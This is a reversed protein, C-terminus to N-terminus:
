VRKIKKSSIIPHHGIIVINKKSNKELIEIIQKEQEEILKNYNREIKPFVNECYLEPNEKTKKDEAMEYLTSDIMIILTKELEHKIVNEFFIYNNKNFTNQQLRMLNCVINDSEGNDKLISEIYDYEHNGLLIYKKTKESFANNLCEIGSNFYTKDFKLEKKEKKSEFDYYNDGAIVVFDIKNYKNDKNDKLNKMVKSLGNFNEDTNCLGYNWCGFHIFSM